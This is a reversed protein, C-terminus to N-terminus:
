GRRRRRPRAAQSSQVNTDGVTVSAARRPQSRLEQDKAKVLALGEKLIANFAAGGRGELERMDKINKIDDEEELTLYVKRYGM